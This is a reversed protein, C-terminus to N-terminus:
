TSYRSTNASDPWRRAGLARSPAEPANRRRVRADIAVALALQARWSKLLFERESDAQAARGIDGVAQERSTRTSRQWGDGIHKKPTHTSCRAWARCCRIEPSKWHPLHPRTSSRLVM